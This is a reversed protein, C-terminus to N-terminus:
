SGKWPSVTVTGPIGLRQLTASFDSDKCHSVEVVDGGDMQASVVGVFIPTGNEHRVVIQNAHLVQAPKGFDTVLEVKLM